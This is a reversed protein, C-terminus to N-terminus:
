NNIKLEEDVFSAVAKYIDDTFIMSRVKRVKKIVSAANM